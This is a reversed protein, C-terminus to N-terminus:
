TYIVIYVKVAYEYIRPVIRQPIDQISIFFFDSAINTAYEYVDSLIGM